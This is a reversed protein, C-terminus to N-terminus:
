WAIHKDRKSLFINLELVTYFGSLILYELTVCIASNLAINCVSWGLGDLRLREHFELASEISHELKSTQSSFVCTSIELIHEVKSLLLEIIFM